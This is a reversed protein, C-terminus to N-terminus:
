ESRGNITLSATSGQPPTIRVKGTSTNVDMIFAASKIGPNSGPNGPLEPEVAVKETQCAAMATVLVATLALNGLRTRGPRTPCQQMRGGHPPYPPNVSKLGDPCAGPSRPVNQRDCKVGM